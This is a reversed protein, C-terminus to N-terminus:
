RQPIRSIAGLDREDLDVATTVGPQVGRLGASLEEGGVAPSSLDDRRRGSGEDSTRRARRSRRQPPGAEGAIDRQEETVKSADKPTLPPDNTQEM